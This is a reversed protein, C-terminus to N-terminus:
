DYFYTEYYIKWGWSLLIILLASLLLVRLKWKVFFSRKLRVAPILLIASEIWVVISFICFIFGAPQAKLSGLLNGDLFFKASTTMGCFPCPLDHKQRFGCIGFVSEGSIIESGMLWILLWGVPVGILVIWRWVSIAGANQNQAPRQNM